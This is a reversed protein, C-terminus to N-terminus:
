FADRVAENLGCAEGLDGVAPAVAADDGGEACAVEGQDVM